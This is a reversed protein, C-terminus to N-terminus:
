QCPGWNALLALLDSAGVSGDGDFDAPCGKCPGWSALLALLDSAGVSGNADLDAPCTNKTWQVINMALQTNDNDGIYLNTFMNHDGLVLMRGGAGFGPDPEMVIMFDNGSGDDGLLLADAGYTYTSNTAYWYTTVSATIPHAAVVNGSQFNSIATYNTVGYFSTFSEYAALPFIDATVILTGGGAIWNQLATQEAGSLAGTSQDLLSTYFVDVGSLYAATLTPTPAAITGGNSTIIGQLTTHASGTLPGAPYNIRSADFSGWNSASAASAIALAALAAASFALGHKTKM